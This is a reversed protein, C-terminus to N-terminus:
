QQKNNTKLGQKEEKPENGGAPGNKWSYIMESERNERIKDGKVLRYAEPQRRTWYDAADWKGNQNDDRFIELNYRDPVLGQTTFEQKVKLHVKEEKVPSKERLIRVIYHATSDLDTLTVKLSATQNPRLITFDVGISDNVRGYLSQILGSDIEMSYKEGAVWPYVVKLQKFDSSRIYKVEDLQGITDYILIRSTDISSIPQNFGIVLTDAPLMQSSNNSSVRKFKTKKVFDGRGKPKVKITDDPLYVFFSDVTTDYFINISDGAIENIHSVDKESIRYPVKEPPNTNYLINVKGYTKTNASIMKLPPVPLSARLSIEKAFTGTLMILSDYFAISENELDYKYNLNEDKVAFLRFTDSKINTFAFTGEKDPRAFYIPKEKRVISDTLNDYLFVVMDPQPEGTRAHIVKGKISLSDLVNGTSFVYSFNSLKNGEHFDVIADGFNITYTANDRLIEKDDFTFTVKKGKHKVQPIYTLPPSVLVQKIPDKVEVFEDFYFQLERPRVNTSRNASSRLTDLVPPKEDKRGGTPNGTSACSYLWLALYLHIGLWLINKFNYRINLSVTDYFLYM